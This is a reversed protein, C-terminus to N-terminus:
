IIGHLFTDNYLLFKGIRVAGVYSATFKNETSTMVSQGYMKKSVERVLELQKSSVFRQKSSFQVASVNETKM